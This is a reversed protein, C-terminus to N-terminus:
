SIRESDTRLQPMWGMGAILSAVWAPPRTAGHMLRPGALGSVPKRGTGPWGLGQYPVGREEGQALQTAVGPDAFELADTGGLYIGLRARGVAWPDTRRDEGSGRGCLDTGDRFAAAFGQGGAGSEECGSPKARVFHARRRCAAHAQLQEFHHRLHPHSHPPHIHL